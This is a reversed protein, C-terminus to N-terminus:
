TSTYEFKNETTISNIRFIDKIWNMWSLHLDLLKNYTWNPLNFKFIDFLSLLYDVKIGFLYVIFGYVGLKFPLLIINRIIFLSRKFINGLILFTFLYKIRNNETSTINIREELPLSHIMAEHFISYKFLESPKSYFTNKLLKIINILTDNSLYDLVISILRNFDKNEIKRFFVKRIFLKIIIGAIWSIPNRIKNIIQM